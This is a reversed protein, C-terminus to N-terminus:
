AHWRPWRPQPLARIVSYVALLVLAGSISLAAANATLPGALKSFYVAPDFIRSTNSFSNWPVLATVALTVAIAFLRPALRRRSTRWAFFLFVLLLIVLAITGRASVRRMM